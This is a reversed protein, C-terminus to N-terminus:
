GIWNQGTGASVNKGRLAPIIDDHLQLNPLLIHFWLETLSGAAYLLCASSQASLRLQM